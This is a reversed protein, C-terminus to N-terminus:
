RLVFSGELFLFINEEVTFFKKGLLGTRPHSEVFINSQTDSGGFFGDFGPVDILFTGEGGVNGNSALNKLTNDDGVFHLSGNNHSSIIEM